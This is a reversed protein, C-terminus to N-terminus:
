ESQAFDPQNDPWAKQFAPHKKADEYIKEVRPYEELSIKYRKVANYVQVYILKQVVELEGVYTLIVKSSELFNGYCSGSLHMGTNSM